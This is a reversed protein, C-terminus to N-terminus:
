QSNKFNKNILDITKLWANLKSKFEKEDEDVDGKFLVVEIQKYDFLYM